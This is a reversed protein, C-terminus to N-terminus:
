PGWPNAELEQGSHALSSAPLLLCHPVISDPGTHPTSPRSIPNPQVSVPIPVCHCPNSEGEKRGERSAEQFKRRPYEGKNIYKDRERQRQGRGLGMETARGEGWRKGKQPDRDGEKEPGGDREKEPNRNGKREPKRDGRLPNRDSEPDRDGMGDERPREGRWKPRQGGGEMEVM